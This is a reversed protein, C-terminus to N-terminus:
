TAASLKPLPRGKRQEVGEVRVDSVEVDRQKDKGLAVALRQLEAERAAAREELRRKEARVEDELERDRKKLEERLAREKEDLEKKDHRVYAELLELRRKEELEQLCTILVPLRTYM